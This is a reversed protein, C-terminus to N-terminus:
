LRKKINKIPIIFKLVYSVIGMTIIMNLIGIIILIDSSKNMLSFSFSVSEIIFFTVILCSIIKLFNKM